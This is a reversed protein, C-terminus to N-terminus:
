MCPMVRLVHLVQPLCFEGKHGEAFLTARPADDGTVKPIDLTNLLYLLVCSLMEKMQPIQLMCFIVCRMVEPVQLVELMYLLVCRIMELMELMCLLVRRIGELMKLAEPLGLEGEVTDVMYFLVRRMGETQLM